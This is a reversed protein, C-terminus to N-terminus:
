VRGCWFCGVPMRAYNTAEFSYEYGFPLSTQQLNILRANTLRFNSLSSGLLSEIPKVRDADRTVTLLRGREYWARDGLRM